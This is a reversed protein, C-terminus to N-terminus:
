KKRRKRRFLLILILIAAPIVTLVRGRFKFANLVPLPIWNPPSPVSDGESALEDDIMSMHARLRKLRVEELQEEFYQYRSSQNEEEWRRMDEEQVMEQVVSHDVISEGWGLM